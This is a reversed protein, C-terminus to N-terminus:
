SLEGYGIRKVLYYMFFDNFLPFFEEEFLSDINLFEEFLFKAPWSEDHLRDDDEEEIM